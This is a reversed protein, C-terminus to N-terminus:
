GSGSGGPLWGSQAIQFFQFLANEPTRVAVFSGVGQRRKIIGRRELEELAKRATGQSVGLEAGSIM